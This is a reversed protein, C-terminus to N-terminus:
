RKPALLRTVARGALAAALAISVLMNGSPTVGLMLSVIAAILATDLLGPM